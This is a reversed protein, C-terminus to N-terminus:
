KASRPTFDIPAIPPPAPRESKKLILVQKFLYGTPTRPWDLAVLKTALETSDEGNIRSESDVRETAPVAVKLDLVIFDGPEEESLPFAATLIKRNMTESGDMWGMARSGRLSMTGAYVDYQGFTMAPTKGSLTQFYARAFGLYWEGAGVAIADEKNEAIGISGFTAEPKAVGDVALDIRVEVISKGEASADSEVVPKLEITHKGVKVADGSVVYLGGAQEQQGRMKELMIEKVHASDVPAAVLVPASALWAFFVFPAFKM